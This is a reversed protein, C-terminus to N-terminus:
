DSPCDPSEVSQWVLMIVHVAVGWVVAHHMVGLVCDIETMLFRM